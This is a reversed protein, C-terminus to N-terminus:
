MLLKIGWKYRLTETQHYHNGTVLYLTFVVLIVLVVTLVLLINRHQCSASQLSRIESEWDKGKIESIDKIEEYVDSSSPM